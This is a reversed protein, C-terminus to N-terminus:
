WRAALMHRSSFFATYFEAEDARRNFVAKPLVELRVFDSSAFLRDPDDLVAMAQASVDYNGRAAAILVGADLFTIIM